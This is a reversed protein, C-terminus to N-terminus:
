RAPPRGVRSAWGWDARACARSAREDHGPGACTSSGFPEKQLVCDRHQTVRPDSPSFCRWKWRQSATAIVGAAIACSLDSGCRIPSMSSHVQQPPMLSCSHQMCGRPQNRASAGRRRARRRTISSTTRSRSTANTEGVRRFRSHYTYSEGVGRPGDPTRRRGDCARRTQEAVGM